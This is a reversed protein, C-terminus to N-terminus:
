KIGLANRVAELGQAKGAELASNLAETLQRAVETPSTADIIKCIPIGLEVREQAFDIYITFGLTNINPLVIFSERHNLNPINRM